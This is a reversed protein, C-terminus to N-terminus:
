SLSVGNQRILLILLEWMLVYSDPDVIDANNLAFKIKNECYEIITKKHTVGLLLPGPFQQLEKHEEDNTLILSLNHIEVAASQGDIPYNPLIKLLNGSAISAKVHATSFKAPTLRQAQITQDEYQLSADTQDFTRSAVSFFRM